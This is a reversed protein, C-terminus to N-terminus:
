IEIKILVNNKNIAFQKNFISEFLNTNKKKKETKTWPVYNLKFAAIYLYLSSFSVLAKKACV